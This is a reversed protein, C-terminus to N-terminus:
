NTYTEPLLQVIHLMKIKNFTSVSLHRQSRSIHLVNSLKFV